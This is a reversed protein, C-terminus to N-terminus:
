ENRSELYFRRLIIQRLTATRIKWSAHVAETTEPPQPGYLTEELATTLTDIENSLNPLLTKLLAAREAPTTYAPQPHHLWGLSQNIAHFAREVTTVESWRAWRELWTPTKLNYHRYVAKVTQPIKQVFPKRQELRWAFLGASIILAASIIVWLWGEQTLGLFTARRTTPEPEVPERGGRPELDGESLPTPRGSIGGSATAEEGSPRVIAFQNVTPEFEIWGLGPFYVEPWAHADQGRISYLNNGQSVGQAYGVVMRAPIGISRLLLVESSAYYNCFGSKWGFLFWNVPDMGPPPAPVTESYTMNQRLYNTIAEAKDFPTAQQSTLQVALHNFDAQINEPVQLYNKKVWDPYNEGAGRLDKRTPNLLLSRVQYQDGPQLSPSVSWNLPDTGGGESGLTQIWGTRSTWVALWPTALLASQNTQWTFTFEGSSTPPLSARVLSGHDPEFPTKQAHVTQWNGDQYTDYTRLRWYFRPLNTQPARVNFLEAKGTGATRGLGMTNGYLEEPTNNSSGGHLAALADNLNQRINDFPRSIERWLRAAEPQVAAPTPLLWAALIVVTAAILINRNLDFEPEGGALVRNQEWTERSKLLNIRGILLLAIFFYFAVGWIRDPNYGDYYQIILIPLLTPLLLPVIAPRRVLRIGCYLGIAWFLVSMLTVFFVHDEIAKGSFLFSFSVGLRGALSALQGLATKEGEILNCLQAPVIILTYGLILWSLGRRQFRSIGLALGLLSGLVALLTVSTLNPTWQTTELRVAATFVAAVLLLANIWDWRFVQKTIMM